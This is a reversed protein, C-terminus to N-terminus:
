CSRFFMRIGPSPANGRCASTVLGDNPWMRGTGTFTDGTILTLPADILAAVRKPVWANLYSGAVQQAANDAPIAAVETAFSTPV